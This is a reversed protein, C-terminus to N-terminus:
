PGGQAGGRAPGGRTAGSRARAREGPKYCGGGPKSGHACFHRIRECNRIRYSNVMRVRATDDRGPGCDITGRGYYAGIYDRGRGGLVTNRGHSTYIRDDGDGGRLVDHQWENNGTPDWDGWIM